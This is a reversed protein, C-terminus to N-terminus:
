GKEGGLWIERLLAEAKHLRHHATSVPIGLVQAADQISLEQWYYLSIVQRYKDPLQGVCLALTHDQHQIEEPRPPLEEVARRFDMHRFWASRRYDRCTNVAIRLLWAKDNEVRKKEYEGM